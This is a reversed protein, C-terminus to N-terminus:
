QHDKGNVIENMHSAQHPPLEPIDDEGERELRAKTSDYQDKLAGIQEETCGKKKAAVWFKGFDSQLSQLNTASSLDVVANHWWKDTARNGTKDMPAVSGNTDVAAKSDHTNTADADQTDDILFLGNLAYKRAYSSAAGTIQSQDAGKKDLPERAFASVQTTKGDGGEFTATAKLYYRDGILVLDDSMILRSKTEILLPKLAELIDEQSRYNYNGFTNKQKKPAKLNAQIYALSGTKEDSM